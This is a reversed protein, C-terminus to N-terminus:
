KGGLMYRVSIQISANTNNFDDSGEGRNLNALGLGYGAGFGLGSELAYGVGVNVGFDTSNVFEKVDVDNDGDTAQKFLGYLSLLDENSPRSTLTKADKQAQEFQEQLTAM